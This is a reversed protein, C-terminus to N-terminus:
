EGNDYFPSRLVSASTRHDQSRLSRLAPLEGTSEDYAIERVPPLFGYFIFNGALDYERPIHHEKPHEVAYHLIQEQEDLLQEWLRNFDLITMSYVADHLEVSPYDNDTRIILDIVEQVSYVKKSDTDQPALSKRADQMRGDFALELAYVHGDDVLTAYRVNPYLGLYSLIIITAAVKKAEKVDGDYGFDIDDVLGASELDAKTATLNTEFYEIVRRQAEHMNIFAQSLRDSQDYEEMWEEQHDGQSPVDSVTDETPPSPARGYWSTSKRRNIKPIKFKNRMDKVRGKFFVRLDAEYGAEIIDSTIVDPYTKVFLRFARYRTRQEQIPKHDSRSRFGRIKKLRLRRVKYPLVDGNSHPENEVALRERAVHKAVPLNKGFLQNMEEEFGATKVDQPTADQHHALYELYLQEREGRTPQKKEKSTITVMTDLLLKIPDKYDNERFPAKLYKGTM